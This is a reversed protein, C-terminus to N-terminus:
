TYGLTTSVREIQDSNELLEDLPDWKGNLLIGQEKALKSHLILNGQYLKEILWISKMILNLIRNIISPLKERNSQDLSRM